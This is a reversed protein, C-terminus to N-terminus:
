RGDGGMVYDRFIEVTVRRYDLEAESAYKGRYSTIPVGRLTADEHAIYSRVVTSFVPHGVEVLDTRASEARALGRSDARTLLVRYPVGSPRVVDRITKVLGDLDLAAPPSPLFVADAHRIVTVLAASERAGPTDVLVVDYQNTQRIRALMAPDTEAAYDFGLVVGAREARDVWGTASRNADTDVLLVRRVQETLIAAVNVASTTKGVGGKQSAFVLVRM